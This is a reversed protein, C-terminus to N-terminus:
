YDTLKLLRQIYPDSNIEGLSWSIIEHHTPLSLVFTENKLGLLKLCLIFKSLTEAEDGGGGGGVM